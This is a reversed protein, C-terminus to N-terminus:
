ENSHTDMNTTSPFLSTEKLIDKNLKAMEESVIKARIEKDKKREAM